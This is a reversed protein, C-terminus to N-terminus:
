EMLTELTEIASLQRDNDVKNAEIKSGMIKLLFISMESTTMPTTMTIQM